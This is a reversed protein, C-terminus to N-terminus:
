FRADIWAKTGPYCKYKYPRQSFPVVILHDKEDIFQILHDKLKQATMQADVFYFSKMVKHADLAELADWLPQYNDNKELQYSVAFYAM